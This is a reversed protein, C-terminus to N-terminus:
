KSEEETQLSARLQEELAPTERYTSWHQETRALLGGAEGIRAFVRRVTPEVQRKIGQAAHAEQVAAKIGDRTLVRKVAAEALEAGVEAALVRQGIEAVVASKEVPHPGWHNGNGLDIPGALRAHARLAANAQRVFRDISPLLTALRRAEDASLPADGTPAPADLVGKILATKAACRAESACHTCHPGEVFDLAQGAAFRTAQEDIRKLTERVECGIAHLERPGLAHDPADWEGEGRGWYVIAPVVKQAGTWLTALLASVRAQGNHDIPSVHVDAGTKLEVIWLTSGEPCRVFAGNRILPEPESWMVDITAPLLAGEPMEYEGRGGAVRTVGGTELLCLAQEPLAGEPPTWKFHRARAEFIQSETEGLRWTKAVEPLRALATAIGHVIRDHMHQHLASGVDARESEHQARPLVASPACRQAREYSSGSVVARTM